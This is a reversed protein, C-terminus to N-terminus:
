RRQYECFYYEIDKDFFHQSLYIPRFTSDFPPFFTDCDFSAMIHTVLLEKCQPNQLSEGYIQGGGIVFINEVGDTDLAALASDLSHAKLIKGPLNLSTNHTVVVNIRGTLPKHKEPISEWTKRGMVLHHGMTLRKFRKLDASLRWPLDGGRGIM